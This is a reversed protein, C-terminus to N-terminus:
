ANEPVRVAHRHVLQWQGDRRAWALLFLLHILVAPSGKAGVRMDCIGDILAVEGHIRVRTDRSVVSEYEYLGDAIGALYEDRSEAVATSHVYVVDPALIRRLAARDDAVMARYLDQEARLVEAVIEDHTV